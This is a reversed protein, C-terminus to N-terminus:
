GEIVISKFGKDCSVSQARWHMRIWGTKSLKAKPLAPKPINRLMKSLIGVAPCTRREATPATSSSSPPEARSDQHQSHPFVKRRSHHVSVPSDSAPATVFVAQKVLNIPFKGTKQNEESLEDPSHASGMSCNDSSTSENEGSQSGADTSNTIWKKADRESESESQSETDTDSDDTEEMENVMQLAEAFPVNGPIIERVAQELLATLEEHDM